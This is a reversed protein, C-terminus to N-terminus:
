VAVGDKLSKTMTFELSQFYLSVYLSFYSILIFILAGSKMLVLFDACLLIIVVRIQKKSYARFMIGVTLIVLAIYKAPITLPYLVDTNSVDRNFLSFVFLVYSISFLLNNKNIKSSNKIKM